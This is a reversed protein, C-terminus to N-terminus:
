VVDGLHVRFKEYVKLSISRTSEIKEAPINYMDLEETVIFVYDCSSNEFKKTTTNPMNGGMTRISAVYVGYPSRCSTSIVKIRYIDKGDDYLLNYESPELPISVLGNLSFFAIAVGVSGKGKINM